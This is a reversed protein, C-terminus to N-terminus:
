HIEVLNRCYRLDLKELNPACLNPLKTISECFQFNIGKLIKFQSGQLFSGFIQDFLTELRVLNKCCSLDLEELNPALLKPLDVISECWSLNILKLNEFSIGYVSFPYDQNPLPIADSSEDDADDVERFSKCKGEAKSNSPM